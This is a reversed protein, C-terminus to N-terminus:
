VVHYAFVFGGIMWVVVWWNFYCLRMVFVMISQM